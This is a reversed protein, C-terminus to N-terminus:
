QFKLMIILIKRQLLWRKLLYTPKVAATKYFQVWKSIDKLSNILIKSGEKLKHDFDLITQFFMIKPSCREIDAVSM